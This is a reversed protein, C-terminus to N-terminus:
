VDARLLPTGNARQTLTALAQKRSTHVSSHCWPPSLAGRRPVYEKRLAERTCQTNWLFSGSAQTWSPPTNGLRFCCPQICLGLKRVRLDNCPSLIQACSAVRYTKCLSVHLSHLDSSLETPLLTLALAHTTLCLLLRHWPARRNVASCNPNPPYGGM